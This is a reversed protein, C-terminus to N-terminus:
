RRAEIPIECWFQMSSSRIHTTSPMFRMAALTALQEQAQLTPNNAVKDAPSM